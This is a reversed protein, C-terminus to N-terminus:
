KTVSPWDLILDYSPITLVHRLAPWPWPPAGCIARNDSRSSIGTPAQSTIPRPVLGTGIMKTLDGAIQAPARRVRQRPLVEVLEQQGPRYLV